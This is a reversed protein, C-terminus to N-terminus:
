KVDFPQVYYYLYDFENVEANLENAKKAANTLDAYIAIVSESTHSHPEAFEEIVAFVKM